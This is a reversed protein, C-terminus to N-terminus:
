LESDLKVPEPVGSLGSLVSSPLCATLLARRRVRGGSRDFFVQVAPRESGVSIEILGV